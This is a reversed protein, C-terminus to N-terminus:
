MLRKNANIRCEGPTVGYYKKFNAFFHSLNSYGIESAIKLISMDTNCLLNRAYLFRRKQLYQYPTMDFHEQFLRNLHAPSYGLANCLDTASYCLSEKQETVSLLKKVFPSLHKHLDLNIRNVEQLLIMVASCLLGNKQYLQTPSLLNCQFLLTEIEELMSNSIHFSRQGNLIREKFDPAIVEFMQLLHLERVSINIYRIKKSAKLLCHCDDSTLIFVSKETYINKEKGQVCNKIAGETVICFEWYDVHRHVTPYDFTNIAYSYNHETDDERYKLYEGGSDNFLIELM